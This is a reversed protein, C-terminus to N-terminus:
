KDKQSKKFKIYDYVDQMDDANFSALDNFMLDAEPFENKIKNIVYAKREEEKPLYDEKRTNFLKALTEAQEETLSIEGMILLENYEKKSINLKDLMEYFDIESKTYDMDIRLGYKKFPQDKRNGIIPSEVELRKMDQEMQEDINKANTRGLLYDTTVNFVDAIKRILDIDPEVHNNEYHSYRARSIGVTNAIDEQNKGTASRLEKLRKGFIENRKDLLLM